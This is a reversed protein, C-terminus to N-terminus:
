ISINEVKADRKNVGQKAWLIDIEGKLIHLSM